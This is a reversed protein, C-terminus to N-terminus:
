KEEKLQDRIKIADLAEQTMNLNGYCQILLEYVQLKTAKDKSDKIAELFPLAEKYKELYVPNDPNTVRLNEGWKLYSLAINYSLVEYAPSEKTIGAALADKLLELAESYKGENILEAGKDIKPKAKITIIKNSIVDINKQVILSDPELILCAKFIDLSKNYLPIMKSTDTSQRAKEFYDFAENYKTGWLVLIDQDYTHKGIKRYQKLAEDGKELKNLLIRSMALYFWAEENSANQQVEKEFEQEAKEYDKKQFALKGTTQEASSCGFLIIITILPILLSLLKYVKM